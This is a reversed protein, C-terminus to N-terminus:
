QQLQGAKVMNAAVVQLAAIAKQDTPDNEILEELISKAAQFKGTNTYLTALKYASDEFDPDLKRIAELQEIAKTDENRDSYALALNYRAPKYNPEREIAKHYVEIELDFEGMEAYLAGLNSYSRSAEPRSEIARNFAALSQKYDQEKKYYVGLADHALYADPYREITNAFLTKTNSWVLSQAHTKASLLLLICIVGTTMWQKSWQTKSIVTHFFIAIGFFIAISPLYFFRDYTYYIHGAIASGVFTPSLLLVFMGLSLAATRHPRNKWALLGLGLVIFICLLMPVWLDPSAISPAQTYPYIASFHDPFLLRQLGFITSKAALLVKDLISTRAVVDDKGIIAIIGFTLSLVFFPAKELLTYKTLPRKQYWDILLLTIPLTIAMVKSLLALLTILLVLLLTRIQPRQRYHTYSLLAGIYFLACLGDKRGSAWSVVETQM